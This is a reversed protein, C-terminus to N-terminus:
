KVEKQKNIYENLVEISDFDKKSVRDHYHEFAEIIFEYMKVKSTFNNYDIYGDPSYKNDPVFSDFMLMLGEEAFICQFWINNYEGEYHIIIGKKSKRYLRHFMFVPLRNLLNADISEYVVDRLVECFFSQNIKFYEEVQQEFKKRRPKYSRIIKKGYISGTQMLLQIYDPVDTQHTNNLDVDINQKIVESDIIEYGLKRIHNDINYYHKKDKSMASYYYDSRDKIVIFYWGTNDYISVTNGFHKKDRFYRIRNM